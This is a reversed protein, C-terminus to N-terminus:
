SNETGTQGYAFITSNYGDLANQVAPVGVRQFVEEQTAEMPITSTFEFGHHLKSNNIYDNKESKFNEPLDFHLISGNIDDVKFFGSPKKSPRIRLFTQINVEKSDKEPM